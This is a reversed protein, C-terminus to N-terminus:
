KGKIHNLPTRIVINSMNYVGGGYQIEENHDLEYTKREGVRQTKSTFPARGNAMRKQNEPKFSMSLIPDAAVEKWFAERFEGFNKFLRGSLKDAVQKPVKGANGHSGLLWKEGEEILPLGGNSYSRGPSNRLQKAIKPSKNRYFLSISSKIPTLTLPPFQSFTSSRSWCGLCTLSFCM